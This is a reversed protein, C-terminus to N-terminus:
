SSSGKYRKRTHSDHESEEPKSAGNDAHDCMSFNYEFEPFNPEHPAKFANIYSILGPHDKEGKAAIEQALECSITYPIPMTNIHPMSVNEGWAQSLGLFSAIRNMTDTSNQFLTDKSIILLQSRNIFRLWWEIHATYCYSEGKFGGFREKSCRDEDLEFNNVFSQYYKEFPYLAILPNQLAEKHSVPIDGCGVDRCGWQANLSFQKSVCIDQAAYVEVGNVIRTKASKIGEQMVVFCNSMKHKYASIRRSLADRIILIFKKEAFQSATYRSQMQIAASATQIPGPTADVFREKQSCGSSTFIDTYQAYLEDQRPGNLTGANTFFGIEKPTKACIEPHSVLITHFSTTGAKSYGIVFIDPLNAGDDSALIRSTNTLRRYRDNNFTIGMISKAKYALLLVVLVSLPALIRVEMM